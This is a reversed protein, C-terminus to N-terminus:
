LVDFGNEEAADLLKGNRFKDWACEAATKVDFATLMHALPRPVNHDLLVRKM